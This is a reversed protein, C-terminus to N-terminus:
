RASRMTRRFVGPTTNTLKRFALHFRGMTSFGSRFAIQQLDLDSEVLMRKATDVRIRVIEDHPSRGFKLKFQRELWRRGVPVHHLVQDVTCPDCAHERIYRIAEALHLNDVAIINTSQRQVVEIPPLQIVRQDKPLKEGALMRELQQAAIYGMRSYDPDISSLPPWASECLLHDNNVGIIAVHEPVGINAQLCAAALNYANADEAAFIGVPKPLAHLWAILEPWGTHTLWEVSIPENSPMEACSFGRAQLARQFGRFRKSGVGNRLPGYFAFNELRCNILHEAAMAGAAIDDLSVITGTKPDASGSCFVLHRSRRAVLPTLILNIGGIIAGDCKPIYLLSEATPRIDPHLVWRRQLNAYQSVGRLISSGYASAGDVIVAVIPRRHTRPKLVTQRLVSM